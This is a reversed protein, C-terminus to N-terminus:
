RRLARFRLRVYDASWSGDKAQLRPRAAGKVEALFQEQDPPAVAALFSQGFILLWERLDGPLPTPREFVELQAVEFGHAVLKARYEDGSPFYWPDVVEPDLGRRAVAERLAAHVSAVNGRAGLEAVFRGGPRLAGAVRELVADPQKMWHLVANSFVADIPRALAFAEGRAVFAAVGGARAARVQPESGDLGIVRAGQAAIELSLVGGGCGLDLIREGPQADLWALLGRGLEPVFAAHRAYREPNWNTV